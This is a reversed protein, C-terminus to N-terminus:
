VAYPAPDSTAKLLVGGSILGHYESFDTAIGLCSLVERASGEIWMRFFIMLVTTTTAKRSTTVATPTPTPTPM